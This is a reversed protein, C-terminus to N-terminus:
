RAARAFEVTDEALVVQADGFAFIYPALAPQTASATQQPLMVAGTQPCRTALLQSRSTKLRWNRTIDM